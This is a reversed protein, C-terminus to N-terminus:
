ATRHRPWLCSTMATDSINLSSGPLPKSRHIWLWFGTDLFKRRLAPLKHKAACISNAQEM